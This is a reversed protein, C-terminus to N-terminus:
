LYKKLIATKRLYESPDIAVQTVVDTYYLM